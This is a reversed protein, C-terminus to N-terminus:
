LGPGMCAAADGCPTHTERHKDLSHPDPLKWAGEHLSSLRECLAPHCCQVASCPCRHGLVLGPDRGMWSQPTRTLQGSDAGRSEPGGRHGRAPLPVRATMPGPTFVCSTGQPCPRSGAGTGAEGVRSAAWALSWLTTGGRCLVGPVEAELRCRDRGQQCRPTVGAGQDRGDGPQSGVTTGPREGLHSPHGGTSSGSLPVRGSLGM